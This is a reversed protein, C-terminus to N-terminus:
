HFNLVGELRGEGFNGSAFFERYVTYIKTNDAEFGKVNKISRNIVIFNDSSKEQM